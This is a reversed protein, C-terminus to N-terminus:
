QFILKKIKNMKNLYAKLEFRDYLIFENDDLKGLVKEMEEASDYMMLRFPNTYDKKRSLYVGESLWKRTAVAEAHMLHWDEKSIGSLEKRELIKLVAMAHTAKKNPYNEAEAKYWSHIGEWNNIKGKTINELTKKVEMEPILQGGINLWDIIKNRDPISKHLATINKIGNRLCFDSLESLCYYRLVRIYTNYAERAKLIVVKRSSNEIGTAM